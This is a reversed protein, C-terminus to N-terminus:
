TLMVPRLIALSHGLMGAVIMPIISNSRILRNHTRIGGPAGIYPPYYEIYGWMYGYVSIHGFMKAGNILEQFPDHPFLVLGWLISSIRQM